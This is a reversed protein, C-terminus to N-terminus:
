CRVSLVLVTNKRQSGGNTNTCNKTCFMVVVMVSPALLFVGHLLEIALKQGFSSEGTSLTSAQSFTTCDVIVVVVVVVDVDVYAAGFCGSHQTSRNRHM